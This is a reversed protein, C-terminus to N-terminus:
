EATSYKYTTIAYLWNILTQREMPETYPISWSIGKSFGKETKYLAKQKNYWVHRNKLTHLNFKKGTSNESSYCLVKYDTIYM